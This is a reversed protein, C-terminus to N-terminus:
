GVMQVFTPTFCWDNWNWANIIMANTDSLKMHKYENMQKMRKYGSNLKTNKFYNEKM